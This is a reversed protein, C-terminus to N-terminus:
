TEAEKQSSLRRKRPPRHLIRGGALATRVVRVLRDRDVPKVLCDVVEDWSGQALDRPRSSGTVIVVPPRGELQATKQLVAHDPLGPMNFDLLVLSFRENALMQPVSASDSVTRLNTIGASRLTVFLAFLSEQDDDVILVPQAPFSKQEAAM